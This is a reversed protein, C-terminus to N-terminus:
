SPGSYEYDIHIIVQWDAIKCFNNLPQFVSASSFYFLLFYFFTRVHSSISGDLAKDRHTNSHGNTVPPM